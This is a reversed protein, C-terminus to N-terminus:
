LSKGIIAKRLMNLAQMATRQINRERNDGFQYRGAFIGAPSAIAIWILGVPKESTGGDPGAVGSTAVAYDVGFRQRIGAVMEKVVEESVAGHTALSRASVNLEKEKIENSYAVVSGKFYASSGPVSTILHAIYGGTCSEATAVTSNREKLLRAITQELQENDYGYIYEPIIKLLKETEEEIEQTLKEKSEGKGTLRLRVIGPHPLYALSIHSPLQKEWAEIRDSLFSEGIGQTMITKHVIAQGPFRDRLMPIVHTTMMAKMEFPVGPMSIMIVTEGTEKRNTEFWMGPATGNQNPIAKCNAPIEAQKHNIETVRIGRQSFFQEISAFAPQNFVLKVNFFRCLADKTIDDKTPGLGGTILVIDSNTRSQELADLIADTKDAIVTFRNVMFGALNLESGMWAANTNVVQGILLEDGINIIEIKM